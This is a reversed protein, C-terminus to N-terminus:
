SVIGAAHPSVAGVGCALAGKMGAGKGQTKRLVRERRKEVKARLGPAMEALMEQMRADVLRDYKGTTASGQWM